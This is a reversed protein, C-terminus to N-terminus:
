KPRPLRDAFRHSPLLSTDLYSASLDGAHDAWETAAAVGGLIWVQTYGTRRLKHFLDRRGCSLGASEVVDRFAPWIARRRLPWPFLRERPPDSEEIADATQQSVETVFDRGSKQFEAPVVLRPRRYASASLSLATNLRIGTDYMTLVLARWQKPGFGQHSKAGATASVLRGLEELSWAEPSRKPERLKEVDISQEDCLGSRQAFRWLTLLVGRRRNVTAMSCRELTTAMYSRVLDSTWRRGNNWRDFDTATIRYQEVTSRSLGLRTSTYRALVDRAYM